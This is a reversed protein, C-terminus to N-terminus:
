TIIPNGNYSRAVEALAKGMPLYENGGPLFDTSLERLTVAIRRSCIHKRQISHQWNNRARGEVIVLSRKPLPVYVSTCHSADTFTLLTHSLLNITVLREGWLWSDDLHPDISSGREPCYDLNCLEVPLFNKLEEYNTCMREVLHKSFCPLGNFGGIKIKQRKFNVKPGYDQM